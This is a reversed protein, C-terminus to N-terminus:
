DLSGNLPPYWQTTAVVEEWKNEFTGRYKESPPQTKTYKVLEILEALQADRLKTPSTRQKRGDDYVLIRVLRGQSDMYVLHKWLVRNSSKDVVEFDLINDESLALYNLLTSLDSGLEQMEQILQNTSMM